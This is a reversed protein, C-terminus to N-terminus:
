NLNGDYIITTEREPYLSEDFVYYNPKEKYYSKTFYVYVGLIIFDLLFLIDYPSLM